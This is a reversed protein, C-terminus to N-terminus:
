RESSLNTGYHDSLNEWRSKETKSTFEIMTQQKSPNVILQYPEYVIHGTSHNYSAVLLGTSAKQIDSLFM